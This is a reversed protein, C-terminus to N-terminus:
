AAAKLQAKRDQSVNIVHLAAKEMQDKIGESWSSLMNGLLLMPIAVILGLETTVLAIAIGGSLLKPDGTGFETIIEFTSIMGTVTGLLGLLPAVAAIVLIFVGFRNLHPSEHLISESVIDEIHDRDKELNRIAAAVVRAPASKKDRCYELAETQRGDRVMGGVRDALKGAGTSAGRLFFFRLVCLLLGILGLTVIIWGITGGDSIIDFVTKAEKTEVESALSEFLFVPISAGASGAMVSRVAEPDGAPWVKLRDGGAPALVSAVDTGSGYAAINGVRLIEGSIETGEATYFVGTERRITGLKEVLAVGENFLAAVKQDDAMGAFADTDLTKIDYQDLTVGAQQFTAALIERNDANALAQEESTNVQEEIRDADSDLRVVSRQLADVENALADRAQANRNRTQEILRELERRQAELFAFERQYAEEVSRGQPAPAATQVPATVEPTAEEQSLAAPPALSAAGLLSAFLLTRQPSM